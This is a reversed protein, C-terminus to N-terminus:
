HVQGHGPLREARTVSRGTAAAHDAYFLTIRGRTGRLGASAGVRSKEPNKGKRVKWWNISAIGFTDTTKELGQRLFAVVIPYRREAPARLLAQNTSRKGLRALFKLRNPHL